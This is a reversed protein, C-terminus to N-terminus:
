IGEGPRRVRPLVRLPRLCRRGAASPLEDAALARLMPETPHTKIMAKSWKNRRNRYHWGCGPSSPALPCASGTPWSRSPSSRRYIGRVVQQQPEPLTAVYHAM